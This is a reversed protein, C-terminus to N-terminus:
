HGRLMGPEWGTGRPFSSACPGQGGEWGALWAGLWRRLNLISNLLPVFHKRGEGGWARVSMKLGFAAGM